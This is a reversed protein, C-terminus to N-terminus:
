LASQADKNRCYRSLRRLRKVFYNPSRHLGSPRLLRRRRDTPAHCDLEIRECEKQQGAPGACREAGLRGPFLLGLEELEVVIVFIGARLGTLWPPPGFWTYLKKRGYM